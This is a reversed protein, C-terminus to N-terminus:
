LLSIEVPPTVTAACRGRRGAVRGLVAIVGLLQITEAGCQLLEIVTLSEGDVEVVEFGVGHLGRGPRHAEGAAAVVLEEGAGALM